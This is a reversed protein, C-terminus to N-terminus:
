SRRHAVETVSICAGHLHSVRSPDVCTQDKKCTENTEAKGHAQMNHRGLLRSFCKEPVLETVTQKGSVAHLILIHMATTLVLAYLSLRPHEHLTVFTLLQDPEKM